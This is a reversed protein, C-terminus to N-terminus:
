NVRRKDRCIGCLYNQKFKELKINFERTQYYREGTRIGGPVKKGCDNCHINVDLKIKRENKAIEGLIMPMIQKIKIYVSAYDFSM